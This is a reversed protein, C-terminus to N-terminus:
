VPGLSGIHISSLLLARLTFRMSFVLLPCHTYSDAQFVVFINHAATPVVVSCKSVIETQSDVLEKGKVDILLGHHALFNADIIPSHVNAIIFRWCYSRHLGLSLMLVDSGFTPILSDNAVCFM